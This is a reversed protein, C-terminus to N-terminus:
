KFLRKLICEKVYSNKLPFKVLMGVLNEARKGKLVVGYGENLYTGTVLIELSCDEDGIHPIIVKTKGSSIRSDITSFEELHEVGFLEFVDSWPEKVSKLRLCENELSLSKTRNISAATEVRKADARIKPIVETIENLVKLVNDEPSLSQIRNISEQISNLYEKIKSM